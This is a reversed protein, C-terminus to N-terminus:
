NTVLVPHRAEEMASVAREDEIEFSISGPCALAM